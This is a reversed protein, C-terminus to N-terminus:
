GGRQIRRDVIYGLRSLMAVADRARAPKARAIVQLTVRYSGRQFRLTDVILAVKAARLQYSVGARQQGINDFRLSHFHSYRRASKGKSAARVTRSYDWRAGSAKKFAAVVSEVEFPGVRTPRRFRQTYSIVRGQRVFTTLRVRDRVAAQANPVFHAEIQRFGRLDSSRLALTSPPRGKASAHSSLLPLAAAVAIAAFRACRVSPRM